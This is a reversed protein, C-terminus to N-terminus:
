RPSLWADVLIAAVALGGIGAAVCAATAPNTLWLVTLFAAVLTAAKVLVAVL